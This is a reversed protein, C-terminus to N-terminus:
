FVDEVYHGQARMTSLSADTSALILELTRAVGNALERSGCVMVQAGRGILDAVVSANAALRDQVYEGGPVRSFVPEFAALSGRAVSAELDKAFLADSTPSRGGWYLHIPRRRRNARIFGVLPAIGAGAGILILPSKERNPKFTPNRRIFADISGGLPLDHLFGSCRGSPQKRVCIQLVGDSRASALSYFRPADSGPPVIGLLDGAEFRPLGWHMFRRRLSLRPAAKPAAFTLVATPAQVEAGYEVREVLEFTRKKPSVAVHELALRHGMAAGLAEGWRAFEAASQRDIRALPMLTPWGLATLRAAVDDAFQCFRSFSRDGFGLIAVPLPHQLTDLRTLFRDASAPASGDGATSTLVLVREARPWGQPLGNMPALHVRHGTATLARHLAGAFGWTTNGESGVLVITDASEAPANDRLRPQRRQRRWWILSGTVVFAPVVLACLGLLLALFWAGEGTHLMTVFEYAVRAFSFPASSIVEGTSADILSVGQGTTLRYTDSLDAAYPFALERLDSLDVAQLGGIVGVPLRPGGMGSQAAISPDSGDSIVEFTTLTLYGGTLSSILLGLSVLRGLEAHWRQLGSGRIARFLGRVGGLRRVLLAFGSASVIALCLASLGALVRGAEGLFLSRHLNTVFTNFGSPASASIVDGTGPDVIDAGARGGDFYSVILIGSPKRVIKDVEEYQAAARAAVEAVTTRGVPPASASLRGLLPSVSLVAGTIAIVVIIGSAILGPWGHLRRLM